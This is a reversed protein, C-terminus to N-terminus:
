QPPWHAGWYDLLPSASYLQSHYLGSIIGSTRRYIAMMRVTSWRMNKRAQQIRTQQAAAHQMWEMVLMRRYMTKRVTVVNKRRVQIMTRRQAEECLREKEKEM